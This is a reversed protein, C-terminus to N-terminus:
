TSDLALSCVKNAEEEDAEIFSTSTPAELATPQPESVAAAASSGMTPRMRPDDAAHVEVAREPAREANAATPMGLQSARQSAGPGIAAGFGFGGMAAATQGIPAGFGSGYGNAALPPPLAPPQSVGSGLCSSTASMSSATTTAMSSAMSSAMGTAMSSSMSSAM